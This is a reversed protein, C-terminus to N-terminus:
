LRFAITIFRPTFEEPSSCPRNENCDRRLVDIKAKGEKSSLFWNEAKELEQTYGSPPASMRDLAGKAQIM